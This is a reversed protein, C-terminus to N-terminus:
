LSYLREHPFQVKKKSKTIQEEPLSFLNLFQSVDLQDEKDNFYDGKSFLIEGTLSLLLCGEITKTELLSDVTLFRQFSGVIREFRM